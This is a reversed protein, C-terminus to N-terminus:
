LPGNGHLIVNHDPCVHNCHCELRGGPLARTLRREKPRRTGHGCVEGTRCDGGHAVRTTFFELLESSNKPRTSPPARLAGSDVGCPPISRIDIHGHKTNGDGHHLWEKESLNAKDVTVGYKMRGMKERAILDSIVEKYVDSQCNDFDHTINM